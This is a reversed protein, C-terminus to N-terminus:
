GAFEPEPLGPIGTDVALLCGALPQRALEDPGLRRRATTIFLTQLNAGGCCCSTPRSVPLDIIRYIQGSPNYCTVCAGDINACWLYGQSDVTAGDCVGREHPISAYIRRNSIAGNEIDFDYIVIER